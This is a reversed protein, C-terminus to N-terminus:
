LGFCITSFNRIRKHGGYRRVCRDFTRRPISEMLQAFVIQGSYM